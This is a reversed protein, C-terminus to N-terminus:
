EDDKEKLTTIIEEVKDRMAQLDMHYITVDNGSKENEFSHLRIMGMKEVFNIAAEQYHALYCTISRQHTEDLKSLINAIDKDTIHTYPNYVGDGSDSFGYLQMSGCCDAHGTYKFLTQSRSTTKRSCTGLMFEITSALKQEKELIEEYTKATCKINVGQSCNGDKDVDFIWSYLFRDRVGPNKELYEIGQDHHEINSGNQENQLLFCRGNKLICVRGVVFTGNIDGIIFDKDEFPYHKKLM